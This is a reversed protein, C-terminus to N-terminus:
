VGYHYRAVDLMERRHKSNAAAVSLAKTMKKDAADIAIRLPTLGENTCAELDAGHRILLRAAHIDGGCVAAHLPTWGEKDRIDVAIGFKLFVQLCQVKGQFAAEHMATGGSANFTDLTVNGTSLIRRLARSDNSAVVADLAYSPHLFSEDYNNNLDVKSPGDENESSVVIDPVTTQPITHRRNEHHYGNIAKPFAINNLSASKRLMYKEKKIRQNYRLRNSGVLSRIAIEM